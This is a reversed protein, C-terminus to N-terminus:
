VEALLADLEPTAIDSSQCIAKGEEGAPEFPIGAESLASYTDSEPLNQGVTSASARGAAEVVREVFFDTAGAADHSGPRGQDVPAFLNADRDETDLFFDTAAKDGDLVGARKGQVLFDFSGPRKARCIPPSGAHSLPSRVRAQHISIV